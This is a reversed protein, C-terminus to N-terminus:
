GLMSLLNTHKRLLFLVLGTQLAAVVDDLQVAIASSVGSLRKSARDIQRAPFIKVVDFFRFIVFAFPLELPGHCFMASLGMGLVEDIVIEGPDKRGAVRQFIWTAWVGVVFVGGWFILLDREGFGVQSIGAQGSVLSVVFVGVLSGWTGPAVRLLGSGCGTAILFAVRRTLSTRFREYM